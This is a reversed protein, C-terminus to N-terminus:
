IVLVSLIKVSEPYSFSYHCAHIVFRNVAYRLSVHLLFLRKDIQEVTMCNVFGVFGIIEFRNM